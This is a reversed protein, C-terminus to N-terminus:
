LATYEIITCSPQPEVVAALFFVERHKPNPASQDTFHLHSVFHVERRQGAGPHWSGPNLKRIPTKRPDPLAASSHQAQVTRDLSCYPNMPTWVTNYLKMVTSHHKDTHLRETVQQNRGSHPLSPTHSTWFSGYPVHPRWGAPIRLRSTLSFFGCDFRRVDASPAESALFLCFSLMGSGRNERKYACVCVCVSTDYRMFSRVVTILYEGSGPRWWPSVCWHLNTYNRAWRINCQQDRMCIHTNLTNGPCSCWPNVIGIFFFNM